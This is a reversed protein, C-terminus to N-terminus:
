NEEEKEGNKRKRHNINSTKRPTDKSTAHDRQERRKSSKTQIHRWSLKMPRWTHHLLHDCPQGVGGHKCRCVEYYPQPTPIGGYPPPMPIGGHPQKNAQHAAGGEDQTSSSSGEEVISGRKNKKTPVLIEEELWNKDGKL